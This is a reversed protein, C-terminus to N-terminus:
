KVFVVYIEINGGNRFRSTAYCVLSECESYSSAGKPVMYCTCCCSILYLEDFSAGSVTMVHVVHELFATAM